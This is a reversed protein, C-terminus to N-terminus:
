DGKEIIEFLSIWNNVVNEIHFKEAFQKAKKSMDDLKKPNNMLLELKDIFEKEHDFDVVYGTENNIVQESCSEGFDYSVVPLGCEYAELISLSFGEFFSTSLYISSSLLKDEPKDIVGMLKIQNNKNIKELLNNELNPDGYLELVWDKYKPLVKNAIDIMLDIRKQSSSLRSITILKKNEIVKSRKVTTFKIPNYIYFNNIYGYEVAKDYSNKCLWLFKIKGNYKNLKKLNDKEKLLYDFSAHHENITRKLYNKPICDLLQYHSTIIYDFDNIKIYNAVKRYDKKLKYLDKIYSLTTRVAKFVNFKKLERIIDSGHTIEWPDNENIISVKMRKDHNNKVNSGKRISLNEVYYGKDILAEGVQKNVFWVGGLSNGKIQLFLVKKM